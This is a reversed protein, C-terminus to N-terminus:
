RLSEKEDKKALIEENLQGGNFHAWVRFIHINLKDLVDMFYTKIRRCYADLDLGNWLLNVHHILNEELLAAEFPKLSFLYM